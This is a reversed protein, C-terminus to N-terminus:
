RGAMRSYRRVVAAVLDPREFPVLHGQDRLQVLEGGPIREALLRAARLPVIRDADGHVVAAPLELAGLRRELAPTEDVLARQEVLFSQQERRGIPGDELWSLTRVVRVGDMRAGLGEVKAAALLQRSAATARQLAGAAARVLPDGLAPVALLRDIRNLAERTGVSGVLVLAGVLEPERMALELAIGGGLSHGVVTIPPPLRSTEIDGALASANAALGVASRENAGWGPRDPAVVRHDRALAAALSAWDGGSGPQGHVLLVSPGSGEDIAVSV